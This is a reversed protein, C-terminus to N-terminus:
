LLAGMIAGSLCESPTATLPATRARKAPQVEELVGAFGVVLLRIVCLETTVSIPVDGDADVEEAAGDLADVERAGVVGGLVEGEAMVGDEGLGVFVAMVGDEGLGVFVAMVGDEGLGVFVAVDVLDV